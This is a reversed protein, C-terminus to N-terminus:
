AVNARPNPTDPYNEALELLRKRTMRGARKGKKAGRSTAYGDIAYLFERLSLNWFQRSSM